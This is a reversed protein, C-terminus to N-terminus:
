CETLHITLQYKEDQELTPESNTNDQDNNDEIEDLNVTKGKKERKKFM